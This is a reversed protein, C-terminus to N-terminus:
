KVAAPVVCKTFNVFQKLTGDRLRDTQEHGRSTIKLFQRDVLSPTDFEKFEGSVELTCHAETFRFRFDIMVSM